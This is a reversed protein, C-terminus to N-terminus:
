LIVIFGALHALSKAAAPALGLLARVRVLRGPGIGSLSLVSFGSNGPFAPGALGVAGLIHRQKSVTAIM